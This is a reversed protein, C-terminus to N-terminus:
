PVDVLNNVSKGNMSRVHLLYRGSKMFRVDATTEFHFKGDVCPVSPDIEAMPQIVLVDSQVQSKVEKLKMCSTPFDGTLYVKNILGRPIFFAQSIPAYLYDDPEKSITTKVGIQGLTAGDTEQVITYTGEKLIGVDVTRDFPLIVMLCYGPYKYALPGLHITKTNHDVRVKTEAFRYCSNAFLGEGVIQVNDNDDFGDPIYIKKFNVPVLMPTHNEASAQQVAFLLALIAFASKVLNM